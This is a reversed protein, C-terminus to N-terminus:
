LCSRSKRGAARRLPLRRHQEVLLRLVLPLVPPLQVAAQRARALEEKRREEAKHEIAHMKAELETRKERMASIKEKNTQDLRARVAGVEVPPIIEELLCWGHVRLDFLAQDLTM